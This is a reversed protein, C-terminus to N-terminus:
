SEPLFKKIFHLLFDIRKCYFGRYADNEGEHPFDALDFFLSDIYNALWPFRLCAADVVNHYLRRAMLDARIVNDEMMGYLHDVTSCFLSLADPRRRQLADSIHKEEEQTLVLDFKERHLLELAEKGNAASAAAEFGSEEGWVRLRKTETLFIEWDDVLLVRYM